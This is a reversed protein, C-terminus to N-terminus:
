TCLIRDYRLLSKSNNYTAYQSQYEQIYIDEFEDDDEDIAENVSYSLTVTDSPQCDHLSGLFFSHFLFCDHVKVYLFSFSVQYIM